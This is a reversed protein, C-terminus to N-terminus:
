ADGIRYGVGAVSEILSRHAPKLKARLRHVLRHLMNYDFNGEGWIAAGLEQRTCVRGYSGALASLLEFEQLSLRTEIKEGEIWVEWTGSDCVVPATRGPRMLPTRTTEGASTSAFDMTMDAITIRDGEILHRQGIVREDNVLTGNTSGEDILAFGEGEQVLRAHKRSVYPSELVLDCSRSRGIVTEPQALPFEHAQGGPTRVILRPEQPQNM